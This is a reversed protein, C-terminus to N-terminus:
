RVPLVVGVLGGDLGGGAVIDELHVGTKEGSNGGVLPCHPTLALVSLMFFVNDFVLVLVIFSAVFVLKVRPDVAHAWSAGPVYLDSVVPM